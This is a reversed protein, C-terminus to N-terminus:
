VDYTPDLQKLERFTDIEIIDDFTCERVMIKYEDVYSELPVQDWDKEKGGPANYVDAIHKGLKQATKRRGILFGM